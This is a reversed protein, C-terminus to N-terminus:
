QTPGITTLSSASLRGRLAPARGPSYPWWPCRREALCLPGPSPASEGSAHGAAPPSADSDHHCGSRRQADAPSPLRPVVEARWSSHSSLAGHYRVLPHRPPPVLACLKAMLELPTMVRHTAGRRPYRLAYAIRGDDLEVTYPGGRKPGPPGAFLAAEEGDDGLRAFSSGTLALQTYAQLASPEPTENSRNGIDREDVFGHRRLWRVARDRLRTVIRKLKALTPPAAEVFHLKADDGRRFVGDLAMVHWHPNANFSDGARHLFSVAGTQTEPLGSSTVLEHSIAEVFLRGLATVVEPRALAL